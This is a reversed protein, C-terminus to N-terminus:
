DGNLTDESTGETWLSIQVVDRETRLRACRHLCYSERCARRKAYTYLTSDESFGCTPGMRSCLHYNRRREQYEGTNLSVYLLDYMSNQARIQFTDTSTSSRFLHCKTIEICASEHNLLVSISGVDSRFLLTRLM